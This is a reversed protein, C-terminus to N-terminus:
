AAVLEAPIDYICANNWVALKSMFFIHSWQGGRLKTVMFIALLLIFSTTLNAVKIGCSVIHAIEGRQCNIIFHANSWLYTTTKKTQINKGLEQSTTILNQSKYFNIRPWRTTLRDIIILQATLSTFPLWCFFWPIKGCIQFANFFSFLQWLHNVAPVKILTYINICM